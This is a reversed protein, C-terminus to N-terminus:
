ASVVCPRRAHAVESNERLTNYFATAVLLWIVSATALVAGAITLLGLYPGTDVELLWKAVLSADVVAFDNM